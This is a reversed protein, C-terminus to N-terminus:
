TSGITALSGLPSPSPAAGLLLALVLSLPM